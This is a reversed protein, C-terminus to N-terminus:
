WWRGQLRVPHLRGSRRLLGLARLPQEILGFDKALDWSLFTRLAEHFATSLPGKTAMLAFPALLVKRFLPRDKDELRGVMRMLGDYKIGKLVKKANAGIYGCSLMAVELGGVSSGAARGIKIGM